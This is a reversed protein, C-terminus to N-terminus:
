GTDNIIKEADGVKTSINLMIYPSFIVNPFGESRSSLVHADISKYFDDIDEENYDGVLKVM